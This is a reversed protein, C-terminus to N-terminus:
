VKKKFTIEEVLNIDKYGFYYSILSILPLYLHLALLLLLKCISLAAADSAGSYILTIIYHFQSNLLRYTDLFVPSFVRVHSLVLLVYVIISPIAAVLGIYLGKLKNEHARGQKVASIDKNGMEWVTGCLIGTMMVFCFIQALINSIRQMRDSLKKDPISNLKTADYEACKCDEGPTGDAGHYCVQVEKGIEENYFYVKQGIVDSFGATIAFNFSFFVIICMITGLAFRTFVKLGSQILKAGAKLNVTYNYM